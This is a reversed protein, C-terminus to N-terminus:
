RAPATFSVPALARFAPRAFLFGQFLEVGLDELAILEERSEIGEAIVKIGLDRCVGLIGRLIAQRSKKKDIDRILAM